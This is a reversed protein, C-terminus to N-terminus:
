SRPRLLGALVLATGVLTGVVGLSLVTTVLGEQFPSGAFGAGALPTSESTGFAAGLVFALWLAYTGVLNLILAFGALGPRLSLKPWLFGFVILVLSCEVATLHASLGMRPNAFAPIFGGTVLGLLLLLVGYFWLRHASNVASM